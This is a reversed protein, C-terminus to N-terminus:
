GGDGHPGWSSLLIALDAGGVFGDRNIDARGANIGWGSLLYALDAGDTDNDLDFDGRAFECIDPLGDADADAQGFAIEAGDIVGDSDCDPIDCTGGVCFQTRRELLSGDTGDRYVLTTYIIAGADADAPSLVFSGIKVRRAKGAVNQGNQLSLLIAPGTLFNGFPIQAVLWGSPGWTQDAFTSNGATFGTGGGLTLYSDMADPALVLNPDWTGAVTSDNGQTLADRHHFAPSGEALTLATLLDLRDLPDDFTAFVEIRVLGDRDVRVSQWGTFDAAAPLATACAITFASAAACAVSVTPRRRLALSSRSAESETMRRLYWALSASRFAFDRSPM